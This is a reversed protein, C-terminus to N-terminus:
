EQNAYIDVRKALFRKYDWDASGLTSRATQLFHSHGLHAGPCPRSKYIIPSSRFFLRGHSQVKCEGKFIRQRWAWRWFSRSRRLAKNPQGTRAHSFPDRNLVLSRTDCNIRWETAKNCVLRDLDRLPQNLRLCVENFLYFRQITHQFDLWIDKWYNQSWWDQEYGKGEM